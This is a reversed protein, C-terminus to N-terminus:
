HNLKYVFALIEAVAQYMEQPVEQDLEVKDYLMRALPKNEMIPVNNERAIEKIKLAVLDAGKAVVKPAEMEGDVYKLAVAFHTPNTIVVTADPVSAMMRRQSIERQKQKIKQKIKPDGEMQKYEEKVEQKTMRMDKKYFKCQLFYDIAAILILVITIQIFIGYVIKIVAGGLSPLYTNGTQMIDNFNDLIYKYGLYGIIIVVALNKALDALSKKSFMNKFGSLPNLKKLNPKLPETTFLFRSQILGAAVASVMIPVAFTLFCIACTKIIIFALGKLSEYDLNIRIGTNLFYVLMEKLNEGIIGSLTMLVLTCVLMSFAIAVDKSRPIQGKKRADNLKKDTPEETKDGDDAFILALPAASIVNIIKTFADPISNIGYNITKIIIPMLFIFSIIGILMKVPMGLIMVNIQPVTRSILAMCLDALLIILIMPIAIKVGLLFYNSFINVITWFSKDINIGSGLPLITFSNVLYKILLHHGDILFFVVMSIYYVINEMMTVNTGSTPDMVNMMAFGMHMDMYAGAVKAAQFILDAIFGLALGSLVENVMYSILMFAGNIEAMSSYDMSNVACYSMILGLAAKLIIPTGAPYFVKVVAFFSTIRLFILMVVLFYTTDIM